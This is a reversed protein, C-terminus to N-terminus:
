ETFEYYIGRYNTSPNFEAAYYYIGKKKNAYEYEVVLAIHYSSKNAIVDAYDPLTWTTSKEANPMMVMEDEVKARQGKKMEEKTFPKQQAASWVMTKQAPLTGHNKLTTMLEGHGNLRVGDHIVGVWPRMSTDIQHQTLKSQVFAVGAAVAASAATVVQVADILALDVLINEVVKWYSILYSKTMM